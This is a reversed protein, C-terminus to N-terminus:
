PEFDKRMPVLRFTRSFHGQDLAPINILEEQNVFGEKSITITIKGPLTLLKTVKGTSNTTQTTVAQNHSNFTVTVGSVPDGKASDIVLVQLLPTGSIYVTKTRNHIKFIEYPALSDKSSIYNPHAVEYYTTKNFDVEFSIKGKENTSGINEAINDIYVNLPCNAIPKNQNIDSVEVTFKQRGVRFAYIDDSGKGTPRNSTFYGKSFHPDIILGFDDYSTNVPPGLNIINFTDAVPFAAFIDLGGFGGLGDSAFFIIGKETVFPFMEKGPTNFQENLLEPESWQVITKGKESLTEIRHSRYLDTEGFGGPKNSAFYLTQGDSTFTPHGVSYEKSNYQFEKENTWKKGNWDLLYIKLNNAQEQRSQRNSFSQDNRTLWLTEFNNTFAVPGEHYKSNAGPIKVIGISEDKMPGFQYIDLFPQNNWGYNTGSLSDRASVFVISDHFFMPAMDSFRTNFSALEVSDVLELLTLRSIDRLRQLMSAPRKDNPAMELYKNFWETAQDFRGDKMLLVAYNYYDEKKARGGEICRLYYDIAVPYNEMKEYCYALQQILYLNKPNKVLMKEYIEAAESFAYVQFLKNARELMMNQAPLLTTLGLLWITFFLKKM